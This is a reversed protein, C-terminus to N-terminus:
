EGRRTGKEGYGHRAAGTTARRRSRCGAGGDFSVCVSRCVCCGSSSAMILSSPSLGFDFLLSLLLVLLLALLLLLVLLLLALAGHLRVASRGRRGLVLLVLLAGSLLRR